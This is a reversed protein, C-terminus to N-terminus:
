SRHCCAYPSLSIPMTDRFKTVRPGFNPTFTQFFSRQLSGPAASVLGAINLAHTTNTRNGLADYMYDLALSATSSSPAYVSM